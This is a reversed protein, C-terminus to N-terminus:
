VVSKRDLVETLTAIGSGDDDAGPADQEPDNGAGSRISDLHGGLVVIEDALENGEVTLIVSPQGGCNSCDTFLEASVDVRGNGLALWTDRIWEAADEGHPSTYYRNTYATSLHEITDRISPESVQPLWPDVTEQNDITYEVLFSHTLARASRDGDIFAEAEARSPFAFFGGCRGEKAHVYQSVDAIRYELVEAIVLRNGATDIREAAGRAFPEVASEYTEPSSVLYVPANPDQEAAVSVAALLLFTSIAIKRM